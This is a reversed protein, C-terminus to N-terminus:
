YNTKNLMKHFEFYALNDIETIKIISLNYDKQLELIVDKYQSNFENLYVTILINRIM